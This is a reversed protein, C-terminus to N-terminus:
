QFPLNIAAKSCMIPVILKLYKKVTLNSLYEQQHLNIEAERATLYSTIAGDVEEDQPVRYVQWLLVASCLDGGFSCQFCVNSALLQSILNYLGQLGTARFPM